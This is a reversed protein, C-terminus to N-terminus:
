HARTHHLPQSKFFLFFNTPIDQSAGGNKQATRLAKLSTIGSSGDASPWDSPNTVLVTIVQWWVAKKQNLDTSIVHDHNPTPVFINHPTGSVKGLASLVPWLDLTDAHTTCTGPPSGPDPCQVPVLPNEKFGEPLMGFLSILTNGLAAGCLTGPRAGPPCALADNPNTDDNMSFFPVLVWLKDTKKVVLGTPDKTSQEGVQCIPTQFEGPDSQMLVGNFDLDNTPQDVCDFNETYTFIYERGRAFGFTQNPKLTPLSDQAIAPGAAFVVALMAALVIRCNAVNM